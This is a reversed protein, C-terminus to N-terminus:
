QPPPSGIGTTGPTSTTSTTAEASEAEAEPAPASAEATSRIASAVSSIEERETMVFVEDGASDVVGSQQTDVGVEREEDEEGEGEESLSSEGTM